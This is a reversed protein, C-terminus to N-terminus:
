YADELYGSLTARFWVSGTNQTGRWAMLMLSTGADAHITGPISGSWYPYNVNAGTGVGAVVGHMYHSGGAYTRIIMRVDQDAKRPGQVVASEIVFVKGAPVAMYCEGNNVGQPIDATCTAAYRTSAEAAAASLPALSLLSAACALTAARYLLENLIM